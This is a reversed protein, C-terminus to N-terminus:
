TLVQCSGDNLFIARSLTKEISFYFQYFYNKKTETESDWNLM